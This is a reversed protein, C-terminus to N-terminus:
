LMDWSPESRHRTVVGQGADVTLNDGTHLRRTAEAVGFVAPLDYERALVGAHGLLSGEEAVIAAVLDFVPSYEFLLEHCVLIEGPRVNGVESLSAVIHARGRVQGPSVARGRFQEASGPLPAPGSPPAEGTAAIESPPTYRMWHRRLTRRQRAMRALEDGDLDDELWRIIERQGLLAVEEAAVVGADALRRGIEALAANELLRALTVPEHSDYELPAYRRALRFVHRLALARVRGLSSLTDRQLAARQTQRADHAEKLTPGTADAHRQWLVRARAEDCRLSVIDRWDALPERSCFNHRYQHWFEDWAAEDADGAHVRAAEDLQEMCKSLQDQRTWFLLPCDLQRGTWDHYLSCALDRLTEFVNDLRGCQAWFTDGIAIVERLHTALEHDNLTTTDRDNLVDLRLRQVRWLVRFERDLTRAASIRALDRAMRMLPNTAKGAGRDIWRVYLYGCLYFEDRGTVTSFPRHREGYYAANMQASRSRHYWSFPALVPAQDIPPRVLTLPGRAAAPETEAPPLYAPVGILPRVRLVYLQQGSVAWELAQYGQWNEDLVLGLRRLEGSLAPEDGRATYPDLRHVVPPSGDTEIELIFAGPDGNIPDTTFLTGTQGTEIMPQIIVAMSANLLDVGFRQAYSLSKASFLSRWCGVIAETLSDEDEIGLFTAHQGVFSQRPTDEHTASSRVAVPGSGVAEWAQHIVQRVEDPLRRVRFASKIAWEAAQFHPLASPQMMALISTIEGQLGGQRMFRRYLDTSLVVGPVGPCGLRM